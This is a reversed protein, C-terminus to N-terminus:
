RANSYKFPTEAFAAFIFSSGSANTEASSIRIKFGNSTIDMIGAAGWGTDESGSSNPALTGNMSNYTWRSTDLVYWNYASASNKYLIYRPRFGCYVFPGDTSGNGTYSGFKSYGAVEAFCYNVYTTGNANVDSSNGTQMVTSTPTTDWYNALTQVANTGNLVMVKGTGLSQHYCVWAGVASRPKAIRFAVPAGLGHGITGAAGTGTYTVVSFGQTTGANVQSTITGNTNSVTSGGAKWQWGVYTQSTQSTQANPSAGNTGAITTFGNSNLSSIGGYTLTASSTTTEETVTQNSFLTKMVSTGVGRVSDVFQNSQGALSRAKVWAFDPQFTTATTNNTGNNVVQNSGTGTYVTAAFYSAGLKITPEPLNTTCLAKFGTPPTYTFPQQGCNLTGSYAAGVNFLSPFLSQGATFTFTPNTGASPNGTIGGSSDIWSNNKGLWAKGNTSDYAIQLTNGLVPYSTGSVNIDTASGSVAKRVQWTASDTYFFLVLAENSLNTVATTNTCGGVIIPTYLGISSTITHEFYWLGTTPSGLTARGQSGSAVSYALNGNTLTVASTKDLPNLTAYNGRTVSVGGDTNYGIWPTPVDLMSDYTTGATLSINNATWNNSNGSYDYGLTTTSTNDKFNLYFGNTGYTGTYAMPVWAGTFQDTTGFSSATLAQGDIFNLETLYGDFFNRAGTTPTDAGIGQSRAFGISQATNLTISASTSYSQLSGNVYIRSRLADTANSSDWVWVIHYWASPDRFVASTVRYISGGQGFELSDSSNFALYASTGSTSDAGIISQLVGLKGRKVWASFTVTIGGGTGNTAFTKGFYASASSRLRVSRSIPDPVGAVPWANNRTAAAADTVTWVGSASQQTPVVANKRIIKGSYQTM